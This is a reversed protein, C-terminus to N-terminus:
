PHKEQYTQVISIVKPFATKRGNAQQAVCADAAQKKMKKVLSVTLTVPM